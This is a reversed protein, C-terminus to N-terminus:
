RIGEVGGMELRRRRPTRPCGNISSHLNLLDNETLRRRQRTEATRDIGPSAIRSSRWISRRLKLYERLL